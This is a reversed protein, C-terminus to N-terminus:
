WAHIMIPRLNLGRGALGKTRFNRYGVSELIAKLVKYDFSRHYTTLAIRPHFKELVSLAGEIAQIEAGEIDMKIFDVRELSNEVVLQDLTKVPVCFGEAGIKGGSPSAPNFDFNAAGNFAGVAAQQLIVRDKQTAFTRELAPILVPNAEIGLVMAAGQELAQLVFFGECVGCDVVIDGKRIPTEQTLYFHGNAPHDAYVSLFESWLFEDLEVDKPLWVETEGLFRALQLDDETAIQIISPPLPYYGLTAPNLRNLIAGWSAFPHKGFLKLFAPSFRKIFNRLNM